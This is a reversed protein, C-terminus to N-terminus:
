SCKYVPVTVPSPAALVAVYVSASITLLMSGLYQWFHRGHVGQGEPGRRPPLGMRNRWNNEAQVVSIFACRATHQERVSWKDM